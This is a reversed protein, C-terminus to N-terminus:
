IVNALSCKLTEQKSDCSGRQLEVVVHKSKIVKKERESTYM